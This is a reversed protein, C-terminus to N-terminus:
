ANLRSICFQKNISTFILLQSFSQHTLKIQLQYEPIETLITWMVNSSLANNLLLIRKSLTVHRHQRNVLQIPFFVGFFGILRHYFILVCKIYNVM